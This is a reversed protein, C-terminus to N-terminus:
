LMPGAPRPGRGIGGGPRPPMMQPPPAGTPLSTLLTALTPTDLRVKLRVTSGKQETALENLLAEFQKYKKEGEADRPGKVIQGRILKLLGKAAAIVNDLGKKGADARADDAFGLSVEVEAEGTLDATLTWSQAEDLPKLADQLGPILQLQPPLNAAVRGQPRAGVVIQHTNGDALALAEARPGEFPKHNAQSLCRKVAAEPGVVFIRDGAFWLAKGGGVALLYSRDEFKERTASEGVARTELKKRDYPQLTRVISCPDGGKGEPNVLTLREIEAAAVGLDQELARGFHSRQGDAAKVADNNWVDQVRVTVFLAADGPVLYLDNAVAAEPWFFWAAAGGALLLPVLTVTLWLGLKGGKKRPRPKGEDDGERARGRREGPIRLKSDCSPCRTLRGAYQAEAQLPQGCDCDFELMGEGEVPESPTVPAQRPSETTTATAAVEATVTQRAGCAPCKIRRGVYEDPVRLQKGCPCNVLLPM